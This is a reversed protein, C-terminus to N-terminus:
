VKIKARVRPIIEKQTTIVGFTTIKFRDDGIKTAYENKILEGLRTSTIKATKGLKTQLEEKSLSESSVLGLKNGLYQASLWISLAENDTLKNKPVLLNAGEPSFAIISEVDKALQQLDVSLTLKQAIEFAPLYEKFFQDLLEWTEQLTATFDKELEKYKLHVDVKDSPSM